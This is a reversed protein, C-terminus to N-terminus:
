FIIMSEPGFRANYIETAIDSQTAAVYFNASIFRNKIAFTECFTRIKLYSFDDDAAIHVHLHFHPNKHLAITMPTEVNFRRYRNGYLRQNLANKFHQAIEKAISDNMTVLTRQHFAYSFPTVSDSALKQADAVFPKLNFVVNLSRKNEFRSALFHKFQIADNIRYRDTETKRM